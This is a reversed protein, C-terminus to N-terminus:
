RNGFFINYEDNNKMKFHRDTFQFVNNIKIIEILVNDTGTLDVAYDSYISIPMVYTNNLKKYLWKIDLGDPNTRNRDM